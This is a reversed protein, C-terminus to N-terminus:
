EEFWQGNRKIYNKGNLTKRQEIRAPPAAGPAQQPAAGPPQQRGAGGYVDVGFRQNAWQDFPVASSIKERERAARAPDTKSLIQLDLDDMLKNDLKYQSVLQPHSVRSGNPLSYEGAKPERGMAAVDRRVGGMMGAIEKRTDANLQAAQVRAGNVLEAIEKQSASRERAIQIDNSLKERIGELKTERNARIEGFKMEREQQKEMGGIGEKLTAPDRLLHQYFGPMNPQEGQLHQGAAEGIVSQARRSQDLDALTKQTAATPGFNFDAKVGLKQLNARATDPDMAGTSASNIISQLMLTKLMREEQREEGREKYVDKSMVAGADRLGAALSELIGM